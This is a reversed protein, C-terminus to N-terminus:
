KFLLRKFNVWAMKYEREMFSDIDCWNPYDKLLSVKEFIEDNFTDDDIFNGNMGQALSFRGQEIMDLLARLHNAVPLTCDPNEPISVESDIEIGWNGFPSNDSEEIHLTKWQLASTHWDGTTGLSCPLNLAHIDTIYKMHELIDLRRFPISVINLPIRQERVM